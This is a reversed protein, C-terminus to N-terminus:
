APNAASRGQGHRPTYATMDSPMVVWDSLDPEGNAAVSAIVSAALEASRGEFETGVTASFYAARERTLAAVDHATEVLRVADGPTHAHRVLGKARFGYQDRGEGAFDYWIPVGALLAAELLVSSDGALVIGVQLLFEQASERTSDSYKAGDASAIAQLATRAAAPTAPHPRLYVQHAPLRSVISEVLEQVRPIPDLLNCCIGVARQRSDATELARRVAHHDFKTIGILFVRSRSPGAAAYKELADSGDLLAFDFALPPFKATVAAHQVYFTPVGLHRAAYMMTRPWLTHDNALVVAAPELRALWRRVAVYLGYALLYQDRAHRTSMWGRGGTMAVRILLIPLFLLSIL